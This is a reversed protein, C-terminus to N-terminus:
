EGLTHSRQGKGQQRRHWLSRLFKLMLSPLLRSFGNLARSDECSRLVSSPRSTLTMLSSKGRVAREGNSESFREGKETMREEGEWM